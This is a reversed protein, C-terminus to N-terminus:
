VDSLQVESKPKEDEEDWNTTKYYTAYLILQVLGSISGLGNPVLIYPDFKILAYILWVIGNCFNALSLTFPMYKVSKTKIVMKMITLPSAYMIINFVICLIGIIMSRGKTTHLFHLTVFVVVAFFIVEVLLAILIRRKANSSYTLFIAICILKIVFGCGNITVVLVSDPHVFPMGYFSWMACNLLTAVYPDAKFEGVSKQKIIKLFTTFPSTFLFFSIVNGIIGVIIRIAELNVM